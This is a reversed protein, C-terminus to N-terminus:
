GHQLSRLHRHIHRRDYLEPVNFSRWHRKRCKHEHRTPVPINISRRYRHVPKRHTVHDPLPPSQSVTVPDPCLTSNTCTLAYTTGCPDASVVTAAFGTTLSGLYLTEISFEDNSPSNPPREASAKFALLAALLAIRATMTTHHM